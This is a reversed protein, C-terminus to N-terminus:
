KANFEGITLQLKNILARRQAVKLSPEVAIADRFDFDTSESFDFPTSLSSVPLVAFRKLNGDDADVVLSSLLSRFESVKDRNGTPLYRQRAVDIKPWYLDCKTVALILWAGAPRPSWAAKLRNRLQRFSQLEQSLNDARLAALDPEVKKTNRLFECVARRRNRDWIWEYGWSVVHIVGRPRNGNRFMDFFVREQDESAFQGPVIRATSRQKRRQGTKVRRRDIQESAGGPTYSEGIRDTIADYIVSKGAGRSGTILIPVSRLPLIKTILEPRLRASDDVREAAAAEVSDAWRREVQQWYDDM